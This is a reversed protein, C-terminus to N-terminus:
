VTFIEIVQDTQPLEEVHVSKSACSRSCYTAKQDNKVLHTERRNKVFEDGCMPCRLRVRTKPREFGHMQSHEVQTMAELNEFRNDSKDGNKHHVVEPLEGTEEWWVVRHKYAFRGRYLKGPYEDPPVTLEYESNPM